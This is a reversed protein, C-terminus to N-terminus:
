IELILKGRVGGEALRAQAAAAQALPYTTDIEVRLHGSDAMAVLESLQHGNPRVFVYRFGIGREAASEPAETVLISAMRGGDRVAPVLESLDGGAIDVLVDAGDPALARIAGAVDATRYDVFDGAGLGRVFSEAGGGALAIVDAGAAHALQVAFHGVGGSAGRVVVTEGTRIGVADHLTQYATLGALPLGGAAILDMSGAGAVAADRVSVLEAYTGGQVLDKRCYALVRDGPAVSTVAPGVAEVTGAADWGPIVPLMHPFAGTLGGARVMADVPNVGAAAIRILVYDPGVLPADLQMERLEDLGGFREVAMARMTAM